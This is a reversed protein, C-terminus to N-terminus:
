GKETGGDEDGTGDGEGETGHTGHLEQEHTKAERPVGRFKKNL